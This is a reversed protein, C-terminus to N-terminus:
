TCSPRTRGVVRGPMKRVLAKQCAFIGLYPGGFSLPLGLSQGEAVAIDAGMAGPTKIVAQLLPYGVLISLAKHSKAKAFLESFDNIIGFFNPNQVVIAATQDDIAEKLGQFDSQGQDHPITVLELHLNTTYCDLMSRYIPNVAESVLIKRRKSVRVATM